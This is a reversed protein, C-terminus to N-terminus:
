ADHACEVMNKSQENIKIPLGATMKFVGQYSRHRNVYTGTLMVPKLDVGYQLKPNPFQPRCLFLPNLSWALPLSSFM